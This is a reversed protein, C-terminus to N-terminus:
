GELSIDENIIGELKNPFNHYETEEPTALRFCHSGWNVKTGNKVEESYDRDLTLKKFGIYEYGGVMGICTIQFIEGPHVDIMYETCVVWDGVKM